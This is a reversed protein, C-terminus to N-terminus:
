YLPPISLLLPTHIISNFAIEETILARRRQAPSPRRCFALSYNIRAFKCLKTSSIHGSPLSDLRFLIARKTSNGGDAYRESPTKWHFKYTKGTPSECIHWFGRASNNRYNFLRSETHRGWCLAWFSSLINSELSLHYICIKCQCM